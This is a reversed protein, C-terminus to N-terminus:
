PSLGITTAMVASKLASTAASAAIMSAHPEMASTAANRLSTSRPSTAAPRAFPLTLNIARRLAQM